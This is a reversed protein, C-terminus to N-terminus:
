IINGGNKACLRTLDDVCDNISLLHEIDYYEILFDIGKYRQLYNSAEKITLNYTNSFEHIVAIIYSIIRKDYISQIPRKTATEM